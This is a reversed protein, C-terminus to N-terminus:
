SISIMKCKGLYSNRFSSESKGKANNGKLRFFKRYCSMSHLDEWLLKKQKKIKVYGQKEKIIWPYKQYLVEIIPQCNKKEKTLIFINNLQGRAEIAKSLFSYGNSNNIRHIYHKM